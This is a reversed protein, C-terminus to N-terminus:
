KICFALVRTVLERGYFNLVVVAVLIIAVGVGTGLGLERNLIEGAAAGIVAIVLMFLMVVLIEYLFWYRGLLVQFFTRYDYTRFSRAVELSLVFVVGICCTAVFIGIVGGAVGYQTFYEVVERGTGYGGAIIVSQLIAGPVLYVAVFRRM